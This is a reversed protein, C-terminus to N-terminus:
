RAEKEKQREIQREIHGTAWHKRRAEELREELRAMTVKRRGKAQKLANGMSQEQHLRRHLKDELVEGGDPVAQEETQTYAGDLRAREIEDATLDAAYGQEDTRPKSSGGVTRKMFFTRFDQITVETRWGKLVRTIMGVRASMKATIPLLDGRKWVPPVPRVIAVIRGSALDAREERTLKEAYYAWYDVQAKEFEDGALAGRRIALQHARRALLYDSWRACVWGLTGVPKEPEPGLLEPLTPADAGDRFENVSVRGRVLIEGDSNPRVVRLKRPDEPVSDFTPPPFFPEPKATM